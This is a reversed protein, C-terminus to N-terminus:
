MALRDLAVDSPLMGDLVSICALESKEYAAYYCVLMDRTDASAGRLRHEWAASCAASLDCRSGLSASQGCAVNM